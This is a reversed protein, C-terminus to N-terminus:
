KKGQKPNRSTIAGKNNPNQTRNTFNENGKSM